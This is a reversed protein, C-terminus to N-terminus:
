RPVVWGTPWRPWGPSSTWGSVTLTVTGSEASAAANNTSGPCKNFSNGKGIGPQSGGGNGGSGSGGNDTSSGCAALLLMLIILLPAILRKM